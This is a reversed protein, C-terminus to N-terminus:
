SRRRVVLLTVGTALSVLAGALLWLWADSINDDDPDDLPAGAAVAEALARADTVHDRVAAQAREAPADSWRTTEIVTGDVRIAAVEVQDGVLKIRLYHWASEYTIVSARDAASPSKAKDYLPAGAGGSVFYHVGGHQAREYAHDHGSIVMTVADREFLPTWRERLSATGGHIGISYMAHHMAVVIHRVAPDRRAAALERDLWGTETDLESGSANSDLMVFRTTAYSFAYYDLSPSARLCRTFYRM